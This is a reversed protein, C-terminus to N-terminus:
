GTDDMLQTKTMMNKKFNNKDVDKWKCLHDMCVM